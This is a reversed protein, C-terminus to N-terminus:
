RAGNRPERWHVWRPDRDLQRDLIQQRLMKERQGLKAIEAAIEDSLKKYLALRPKKDLYHSYDFPEGFTLIVPETLHSNPQWTKAISGVFDNDVGLIFLPVVIPRAKLVIQGTGPQAPLLTYPDDTKNRTGEPHMGVVTGPEQLFRCIRDVADENWKSKAPDRFIPPYMAGGGVVCNILVGVPNEYFFNARVPFYIRELWRCRRHYLVLMTLYMDFFSRHNACLLVGRDPNLDLVREVRDVFLRRAIGAYVWRRGFHVHFPKQLRKLATENALRLAAVSAREFRSLEPM